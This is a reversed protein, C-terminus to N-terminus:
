RGAKEFAKGTLGYLRIDDIFIELSDDVTKGYNQSSSFTVACVKKMGASWDLQEQQPKSWPKPTLEGVPIVYYKWDETLDFYRSFHGWNDSPPYGNRITDTILDITMAGFGKAFFSVATLDSLDFWDSNYEGPFSAGINLVPYDIGKLVGKACLGKGNKGWPGVLRESANGGPPIRIGDNDTVLCSDKYWVNWFCCPAAANGAPLAALRNQGPLSDEFDDLLVFRDSGPDPTVLTDKAALQQYATFTSEPRLLASVLYERTADTSDDYIGFNGNYKWYSYSWGRSVAQKAIFSTYLARSISDATDLAGFEGLFVPIRNRAAWDDVRNFCTVLMSTDSRSARWRTGKWLDTGKLWMAGQHTFVMPDYSHFTAILFSDPPLVLENLGDASNWSAGGIIVSRGPNTRRVISLAKAALDNWLASTMAGNPENCLEFYLEPGYPACRGAIQEWIALFVPSYKEPDSMLDEFHHVNIIVRLDNARAQEIAWLVRKFFTEDIIYPAATDVHASWRVPIRVSQFGLSKIHGFYTDKLVVGWAGETPAELANGLNMCKGLRTYQSRIDWEAGDAAPPSKTCEKCPTCAFFFAASVVFPLMRLSLTRDNGRFFQRNFSNM